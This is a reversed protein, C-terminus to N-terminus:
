ESVFSIPGIVKFFVWASSLERPENELGPLDLSQGLPNWFKKRARAFSRECEKSYSVPRSLHPSKRLKVSSTLPPDLLPRRRKAEQREVLSGCHEGSIWKYELFEEYVGLTHIAWQFFLNFSFFWCMCERLRLADEVIALCPWKRDASAWGHKNM